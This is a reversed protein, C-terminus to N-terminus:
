THCPRLLDMGSLTIAETNRHAPGTDSLLKKLIDFRRLVTHEPTPSRHQLTRIVIKRVIDYYLLSTVSIIPPM